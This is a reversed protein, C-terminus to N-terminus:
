PAPVEAVVDGSGGGRTAMREDLGFFLERLNGDKGARFEMDVADLVKRALAKGKEYAQNREFKRGLQENL